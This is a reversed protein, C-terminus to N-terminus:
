KKVKQSLQKNDLFDNKSFTLTINTINININHNYQFAM